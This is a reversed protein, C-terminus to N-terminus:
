RPGTGGCDPARSFSAPRKAPRPDGGQAPLPATAMTPGHARVLSTAELGLRWARRRRAPPAAPGRADTSPAAARHEEEHPEAPAEPPLLRKTGVGGRHHSRVGAELERPPKRGARTRHPRRGGRARREGLRLRESVFPVPPLSLAPKQLGEGLVWRQTESVQPQGLGEPVEPFVGLAAPAVEPGRNEVQRVVRPRLFAERKREFGRAVSGAGEALKAAREGAFGGRGIGAVVGSPEGQRELTRVLGLRQEVRQEICGPGLM